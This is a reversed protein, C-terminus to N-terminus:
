ITEMPMSMQEIVIFYLINSALGIHLSISTKYLDDKDNLSISIFIYIYIYCLVIHLRFNFNINLIKFMILIWLNMAKILVPKIKNKSKIVLKNIFKSFYM